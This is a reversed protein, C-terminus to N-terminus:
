AAVEQVENFLEDPLKQGYARLRTMCEPVFGGGKFRGIVKGDRGLGDREFTFVERMDVTEGDTGVVENISIVKRSGDNVRACQIVINVASALM